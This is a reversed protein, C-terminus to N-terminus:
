GKADATSAARQASQSSQLVPAQMSATFTPREQVEMTVHEVLQGRGDLEFRTTIMESRGGRLRLQKVFKRGIM